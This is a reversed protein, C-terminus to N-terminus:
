SRCYVEGNDQNTERSVIAMFPHEQHSSQGRISSVAFKGLDVKKRQIHRERAWSGHLTITDYDMGEFDVCVSLAKEIFLAENSINRITVSRTIVDLDEFM